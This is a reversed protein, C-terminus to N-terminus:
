PAQVIIVQGQSGSNGENGTGFGAGGTGGSVDFTPAALIERQVIYVCGGGGGGGGGGNTNSAASGNGGRARLVGTFDWIAANVYVCGGGGGGSGSPGGATALGGAGGGGGGRIPSVMSLTRLCATSYSTLPGTLTYNPAAASGGAGGASGASGGSGGSGGLSTSVGTGTAGIGVTVRGSAGLGSDRRNPIDVDSLGAGGTGGSADNGNDSIVSTAAGTLNWCRIINGQTRIEVGASITITSALVYNSLTYVGAVPSVTQGAITVPLAGDFVLDGDTCPGFLAIGYRQEAINPPDYAM